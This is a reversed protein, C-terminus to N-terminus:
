WSAEEFLNLLDIRCRVGTKTFINAIHNNVTNVSINLEGGIEKNTLGSKILRIIEVERETIHYKEIVLEALHKKEDILDENRKGTRREQHGIAVFLFVLLMIFYLLSVLAFVLPSIFPFIFTLIFAALAAASVAIITVAVKKVGRSEINSLARAMIVITYIIVIAFSFFQLFTYIYRESILSAAYSLSFVATVLSFLVKESANVPRAITWNIFLPIFVILFAVDVHFLVDWVVRFVKLALTQEFLLSFQVIAYSFVVGLLTSSFVVLFKSWRFSAKRGWIIALSLDMSSISIALICFILTLIQMVQM